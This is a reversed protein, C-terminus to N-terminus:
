TEPPSCTTLPSTGHSRVEIMLPLAEALAEQSAEFDGLRTLIDSLVLLAGGLDPSRAQRLDTVAEQFAELAWGPGIVFFGSTPRTPRRM